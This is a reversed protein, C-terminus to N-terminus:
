SYVTNIKDLPGMQISVEVKCDVDECCKIKYIAGKQGRTQIQGQPKNATTIGLM